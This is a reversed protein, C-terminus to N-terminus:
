SERGRGIKNLKRARRKGLGEGGEVRWLECTVWCGWLATIPWARVSLIWSQVRCVTAGHVPSLVRLGHGGSLGRPTCVARVRLLHRCLLGGPGCTGRGAGRVRSGCPVPCVSGRFVWLTPRPLQPLPHTHLRKSPIPGGGHLQPGGDCHGPPLAVSPSPTAPLPLTSAPSPSPPPRPPAPFIAAHHPSLPHTRTHPPPPRPSRGGIPTAPSRFPSAPCAQQPAVCPRNGATWSWLLADQQRVEYDGVPLNGQVLCLLLRDSQWVVGTCVTSAGLRVEHNMPVTANNIVPLGFNLGSVQLWEGCADLALCLAVM